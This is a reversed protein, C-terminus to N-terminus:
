EQKIVYLMLEEIKALLMSQVEAVNAGNAAMEQASPVGPLHGKENIHAEVEMLPALRYEPDFVYDAWNTDVIIGKARVVGNVSLKHSPSLTGIGVNGETNESLLRVWGGWPNGWYRARMWLGQNI